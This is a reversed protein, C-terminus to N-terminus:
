TRVALTRALGAKRAVGTKLFFHNAFLSGDLVRDWAVDRAKAWQLHVPSEEGVDELIEWSRKRFANELLEKEYAQSPSLAVVKRVTTVM